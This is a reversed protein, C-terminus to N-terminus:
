KMARSCDGVAETRKKAYTGALGASVAALTTMILLAIILCLVSRGLGYNHKGRSSSPPPMGSIVKDHFVKNSDTSQHFTLPVGHSRADVELSM